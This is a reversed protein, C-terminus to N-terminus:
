FSIQNIEQLNTIFQDDRDLFTNMVKNIFIFVPTVSLNLLKFQPIKLWGPLSIIKM